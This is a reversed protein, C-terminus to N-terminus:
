DLWLVPSWSTDFERSLLEVGTQEFIDFIDYYIKM